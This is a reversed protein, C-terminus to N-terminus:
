CNNCHVEALFEWRNRDANFLWTQMGDAFQVYAKQKGSPTTVVRIAKKGSCYRACPISYIDKVTKM